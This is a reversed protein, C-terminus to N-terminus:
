QLIASLDSSKGRRRASAFATKPMDTGLEALVKEPQGLM